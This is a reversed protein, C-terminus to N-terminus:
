RLAAALVADANGCMVKVAQARSLGAVDVLWVLSEIGTASRIAIALRRVAAAGASARLPALADEIWGIARGQRLPLEGPEESLSLRLMTRLQPETALLIRMYARMVLRLREAPDGPPDEPLLSTAVTEPHAAALLASQSPFYRYATTRSIGARAAADEVTPSKGDAVLERAAEILAAKTRQKQRSRGNVEYPVPM